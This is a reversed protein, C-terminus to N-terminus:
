PSRLLGNPVSHRVPISANRYSRPSSDRGQNSFDLAVILLAFAAVALTTFKDFFSHM